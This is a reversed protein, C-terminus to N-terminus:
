AQLLLTGVVPSTAAGHDFVCDTATPHRLTPRLGGPPMVYGFPRTDGAVGRAPQAVADHRSTDTPCTTVASSRPAVSM